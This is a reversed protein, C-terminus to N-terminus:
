VDEISRAELGVDAEDLLLIAGWDKRWKFLQELRARPRKSDAILDGISLALLPRHVFEALSEVAFTKGTGPPGHLVINLGRGKHSIFDGMTQFDKEMYNGVLGKLLDKKNQKLVLQNLFINEDWHVEKLSDIGVIYAEQTNVVICRVTSPCLIVIDDSFPGVSGDPPEHTASLM